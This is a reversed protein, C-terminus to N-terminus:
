PEIHHAAADSRLCMEVSSLHAHRAGAEQRGTLAARHANVPQSRHHFPGCRQFIQIGLSMSNTVWMSRKFARSVTEDIEEEEEDEDGPTKWSNDEAM